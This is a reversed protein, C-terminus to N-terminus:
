KTIVIIIVVAIICVVVVGVMLGGVLAPIIYNKTQATYPLLDYWNVDVCIHPLFHYAQM